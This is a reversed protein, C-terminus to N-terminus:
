LGVGSDSFNFIKSDDTLNCRNYNLYDEHAKKVEERHKREVNYKLEIVEKEKLPTRNPDWGLKKCREKHCEPSCTVRGEPCPETCIECEKAIM